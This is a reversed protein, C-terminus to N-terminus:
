LSKLIQDLGELAYKFTNSKTVAQGHKRGLSPEIIFWGPYNSVLADSITMGIKSDGFGAPKFGKGIKMDRIDIAATKNKLLTWYRIFPDINTQLILSVPDYLLKWYTHKALLQAIDTAKHTHSKPTIELLPIIGNDLCRDSVRQMWNHIEDIHVNPNEEGIFIRAMPANYYKCINIVNDIESDKIKSLRQADVKGLESAIMIITLNHDGIIAALRKHGIDSTDCINGTWVHRLVAYFIGNDNLTKCGISPEEGAEDLYAALKLTSRDM